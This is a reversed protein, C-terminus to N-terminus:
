LVMCSSASVVLTEDGQKLEVSNDELKTIKGKSGANKGKFIIVEKGQEFPISKEIKGTLLNLLVTDQIQVKDNDSIVNRGDNFRFLTKGGKAKAKSLVKLAKVDGKTDSKQVTLKGKDTFSVIFKEGKIEIIDGFGVNYKPEIVKKGDVKVFGGRVLYKVERMNGSLHMVDRIVGGLALSESNKHKGPLDKIYYKHKKRPIVAVRTVVSRKFHKSEGHRAM